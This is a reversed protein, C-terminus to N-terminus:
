PMVWALLVSRADAVTVIGTWVAALCLALLLEIRHERMWGIRSARIKEIQRELRRLALLADACDEETADLRGSLTTVEQSLRIVHDTLWHSHDADM